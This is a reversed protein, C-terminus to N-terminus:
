TLCLLGSIVRSVGKLALPLSYWGSISSPPLLDVSVVVLSSWNKTQGFGCERLRIDADALNMRRLRSRSAVRREVFGGLENLDIVERLLAEGLDIPGEVGFQCAEALSDRRQLLLQTLRHLLAAPPMEPSTRACRLPRDLPARM